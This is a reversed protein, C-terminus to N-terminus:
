HSSASGASVLERGSSDTDDGPRSPPVVPPPETRRRRVFREEILHWSLAAAAYTVVVRIGLTPWASLGIREPTLLFAVPLNYLYIGYSIKGTYRMFRLQFVRGVLSGPRELTHVLLVAACAAAWFLVGWTYLWTSSKVHANFGLFVLLGLTAIGTVHWRVARPMWGERWLIAFAAGLALEGARPFSSMYLNYTPDTRSVWAMYALSLAIVTSCVALLVRPTIRRRLMLLVALPWILYFQEEVALTWTPSLLRLASGDWVMIWNNIYFLGGVAGVLYPKSGRLDAFLTDLVGAVVLLVLLGPLLRRVRRIYFGKLSIAGRRAWEELLLTSILFGSLVFFVDVGLFGGPFRDFGGHFFIVQLM